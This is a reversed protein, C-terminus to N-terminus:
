GARPPELLRGTPQPGGALLAPEGGGRFGVDVPGGLRQVQMGAADDQALASSRSCCALSVRCITSTCTRVSALVTRSMAVCPARM